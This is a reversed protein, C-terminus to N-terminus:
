AAGQRPRCGVFESRLAHGCGHTVPSMSSPSSARSPRPKRSARPPTTRLRRGSATCAALVRQSSNFFPLPNGACPESGRGRQGGMRNWAGSPAGETHRARCFASSSSPLCCQKQDRRGGAGLTAAAPMRPPSGASHRRPLPGLPTGQCMWRVPAMTQPSCGASRHRPRGWLLGLGHVSQQPLSNVVGGDFVHEGPEGACLIGREM